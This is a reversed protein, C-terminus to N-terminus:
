MDGNCYIEWEANCNDCYYWPHGASSENLEETCKPCKM